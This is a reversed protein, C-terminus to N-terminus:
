RLSCHVAIAVQQDFRSAIGELWSKRNSERNKLFAKYQEELIRAREGYVHKLDEVDQRSAEQLCYTTLLLDEQLCRLKCRYALPNAHM